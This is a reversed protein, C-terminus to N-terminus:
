SNISLVNKLGNIGKCPLTAYLIFILIKLWLYKMITFEQIVYRCVLWYGLTGTFFTGFGVHTSLRTRSTGLFTAIGIAVGGGIGYMFSNRFCPIQSVDRGFM